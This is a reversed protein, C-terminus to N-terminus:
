ATDTHGFEQWRLLFLSARFFQPCFKFSFTKGQNQGEELPLYIHECTLQPRPDSHLLVFQPILWSVDPAPGGLVQVARGTVGLVNSTIFPLHKNM